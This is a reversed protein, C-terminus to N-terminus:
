SKQKPILGRRSCNPLRIKGRLVIFFDHVSKAIVDGIEHIESLQEAPRRELRM